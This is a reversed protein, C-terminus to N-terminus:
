KFRSKDLTISISQFLSATLMLGSFAKKNFCYVPSSLSVVSPSNASNKLPKHNCWLRKIVSNNHDMADVM